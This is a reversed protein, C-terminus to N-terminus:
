PLFLQIKVLYTSMKRFILSRARRASIKDIKYTSQSEIAVTRKQTMVSRQSQDDSHSLLESFRLLYLLQRSFNLATSFTKLTKFTLSPSNACTCGMVHANDPVGGLVQGIVSFRIFLLVFLMFWCCNRPPVVCGRPLPHRVTGCKWMFIHTSQKRIDSFLLLKAAFNMEIVFRMQKIDSM